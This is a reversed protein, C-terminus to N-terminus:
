KLDLAAERVLKLARLTLFNRANMGCQLGRDDLHTAGFAYAVLHIGDVTIGHDLQPDIAWRLDILPLARECALKVVRASLANTNVMVRANSAAGPLGCDGFYKSCMHKPLTTLIPVIGQRELADVLRGLTEGFEAAAAAPPGNQIAADNTGYLVVAFAPSVAGVMRSLASEGAANTKLAWPTRAGNRAARPADFPDWTAGGDPGRLPVRLTEVITGEPTALAERVGQSLVYKGAYPAGAGFPLFAPDVTLSDGVLGFAAASRGQRQGEQFVRRVHARTSADLPAVAELFRALPIVREHGPKGCETAVTQEEQCRKFWDDKPLGCLRVAELDQTDDRAALKLSPAACASPTEVIAADPADAPSAADALPEASGHVSLGAGSDEASRAPSPSPGPAAPTPEARRPEGCASLWAAVGAAVLARSM